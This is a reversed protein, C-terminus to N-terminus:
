HLDLNPEPNGNPDIEDDDFDSDCDDSNNVLDMEDPDKIGRLFIDYLYCDKIEKFRKRLDLINMKDIDSDKMDILSKKNKDVNSNWCKKRSVKYCNNCCSKRSDGEKISHM